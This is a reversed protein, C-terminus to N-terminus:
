SGIEWGAFAAFLLSASGKLAGLATTFQQTVSIGGTLNTTLVQWVSLDKLELKLLYYAMKLAGIAEIAGSIIAPAGVFIALYAVTIKIAPEIAAFLAVIAIRANDAWEKLQGSASLEKLWGTFTKAISGGSLLRGFFDNLVPLVANAIISYFEKWQAGLQALLRVFKESEVGQMTTVKGNLEGKEALDRLVPLLAAGSKGFVEMMWATKGAGDKFNSMRQAVLLMMKGPDDMNASLEKGSIGLKAFAAAQTGTGSQAAAMSKSLKQLGGAVLDIDTGSLKAVSKLGSLSEVSTGTIDSLHKLEAQAEIASKVMGAFMGVTMGAALGMIAKQAMGVASDIASMAGTVTGKVKQMDDSIRLLDVYMQIELQGAIM